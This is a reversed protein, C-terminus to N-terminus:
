AGIRGAAATLDLERVAREASAICAPVGVGDLYAGCLALGPIGAVATRVSEVRARHGVSYQPLAGGWRTVLTDAPAIPRGLMAGLDALAVATLEDDDRQLTRVEGARGLSLRVVVLDSGTGVWAWKSSSFTAAKVATGEVPPVLLGSGDIGAFQERPVAAAVVAVSASEVDMLRSSTLGSASRLVKAAAAAPVALIVADATLLEPAPVPGTELERGEASRRLARVSVGTRM